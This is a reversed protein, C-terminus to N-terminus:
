DKEVNLQIDMGNISVSEVKMLRKTEEDWAILNDHCCRVEEIIQALEEFDASDIFRFIAKLELQRFEHIATM